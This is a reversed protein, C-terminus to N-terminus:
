GGTISIASCEESQVFGVKEALRKSAENESHCAWVPMKNEQLAYKIMMKAAAAGLGRKQYNKDTEIGIDIETSSIAASFAWAAANEGDTICYGRGKALFEDSNEWSFSPSIKGNIKKLLGADIEKIEYGSPVAPTDIRTKKRYEFFYRRGVAAKEKASFFAKTCNDNTFLILRRFTTSDRDAMLKYVQELFPEGYEGCLFAFGSYHWILIQRCSQNAFVEGRQFGELVSLPYVRGCTDTEIHRIIDPYSKPDVRQM